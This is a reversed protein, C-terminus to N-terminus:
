KFKRFYNSKYAEENKSNLKISKENNELAEKFKTLKYLILSKKFYIKYNGDDENIAENIYTLAKDYKESKINIDALLIIANVNKNDDKLIAKCVLKANEFDNNQYFYEAAAINKKIAM